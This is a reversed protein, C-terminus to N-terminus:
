VSWFMCEPKPMASLADEQSAEEAQGEVEVEGGKKEAIVENEAPPPLEKSDVESATNDTPPVNTSVNLKIEGEQTDDETVQLKAEETAPDLYRLRTFIARVLAHM